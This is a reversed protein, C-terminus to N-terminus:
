AHERDKIELRVRQGTGTAKVKMLERISHATKGKKGIAIGIDDPHTHLTVEVVNNENTSESVSISEPHNLISKTIFEVLETM